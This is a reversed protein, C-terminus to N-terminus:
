PLNHKKYVDKRHKIRRIFVTNTSEEYYMILRYQKIKLRYFPENIGKLHEVNGLDGLRNASLLLSIQQIILDQVNKPFTETDKVAHKTVEVNM